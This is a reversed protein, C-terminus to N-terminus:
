RWLFAPYADLDGRLTRALLRAQLLPVFGLSVKEGLFPHTITEQKRTQYQELVKKRSDDKLRVAGADEVTFDRSGVQQRNILSLAVRDAIVPRLEEMLDLALGARGPRDTHLFGVQPDLGVSECASRCDSALLAYSFSLLANVPDRPPRRSRGNMSIGPEPNRLLSGFVAFYRKAAEGEIGRLRGIEAVRSARKLCGSLYAVCRALEGDADGHDRVARAVVVRSNHIKARVFIESLALCRGPDESARFQDKRLLVNGSTSGRVTALFRGNPQHYSISVRNRACHAMLYPSLGVHGFCVISELMHIPVRLLTQGGRRVVVAEGEKALHSDETTVFLTNLHTKM